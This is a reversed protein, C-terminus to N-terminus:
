CGADGPEDHTMPAAGDSADSAERRTRRVDKVRRMAASIREEVAALRTALQMAEPPLETPTVPRPSLVTATRLPEVANVREPRPPLADVAYEAAGVPAPASYPLAETRRTVLAPAADLADEAAGSPRWAIAPPAQPPPAPPAPTPTAITIVPRSAYEIAPAAPTRRHAAAYAADVHETGVAEAGAAFAEVIANDCIRNILSPNGRSIEHVRTLAAEDILPERRGAIALRHAIYARTREVDFGTLECTRYIRRRLRQYRARALLDELTPLGLLVLCLPRTARFERTLLARIDSWHRERLGDANDVIAVTPGAGSSARRMWAGLAAEEPHDFGFRGVGALTGPAYIVLETRTRPQGFGHIWLVRSKRNLKEALLRALLTKGSGSEGLLLVAAKGARAAFQATALAEQHAPAEFYFAPDPSGEFPAIRLGFRQYAHMM